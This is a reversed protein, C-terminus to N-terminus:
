MAVGPSLVPDLCVLAATQTHEGQCQQLYNGLITELGSRWTLEKHGVQVYCM